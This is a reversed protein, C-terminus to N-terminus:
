WEFLQSPDQSPDSSATTRIRSSAHITKSTNASPILLPVDSSSSFSRSFISRGASRIKGRRLVLAARKRAPVPSPVLKQLTAQAPRSSFLKSMPAQSSPFGFRDVDDPKDPKQFSQDSPRVGNRTLRLWRLWRIPSRKCRFLVRELRRIRSGGDVGLKSFM